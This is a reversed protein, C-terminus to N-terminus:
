SASPPGLDAQPAPQPEALAPPEPHREFLRCYICDPGHETELWFARIWPRANRAAAHELGQRELDHDLVEAPSATGLIERARETELPGRPHVTVVAAGEELARALREVCSREEARCLLTSFYQLLKDHASRAPGLAARGLDSAATLDVRDTPFGDRVLELRVREAVPGDTFVALLVASM